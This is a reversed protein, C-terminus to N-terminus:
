LVKCVVPRVKLAVDDGLCFCSHSASFQLLSNPALTPLRM